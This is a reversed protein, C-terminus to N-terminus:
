KKYALKEIADRNLDNMQTDMAKQYMQVMRNAEILGIMEKVPNVNSKEVFGQLVAGSEDAAPMSAIDDAAFLGDGEKQLMRVNDPRVVMLQTSQVMQVTGPLTMYLKGNKDAEIVSDQVDFTIKNGTEFYDSPLVEYGQKTVLKGDDSMTFTGDRTLRIGQPTQVAFFLGEEKLAFDLTNDTKQMSGISQDVFRDTIQPVRAMTRHFFQAAEVTNNANPLDDRAEKYLRMFDGTVLSDKKYGVTNVNALNNSITDLRNFQAVMGGASAYYGNQMQM